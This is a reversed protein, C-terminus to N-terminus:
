CCTRTGGGRKKQHAALGAGAVPRHGRRRARSGPTAAEAAHVRAPSALRGPLEPPLPHRVGARHAPGPAPGDVARDRLRARGPQRGALPLRDEGPHLVVQPASRARAAGGPRRCGATPVRRGLSPRQRPGRRPLRRGGRRLVGRRNAPRRPLSPIGSRDTLRHNEHSCATCVAPGGRM